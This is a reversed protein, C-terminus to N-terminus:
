RAIRVNARSTDGVTVRTARDRREDLTAGWRRSLLVQARSSTVLAVLYSGAPLGKLVFRGDSEPTVAFVLGQYAAYPRNQPVAVVQDWTTASPPEITGGLEFVRDTLTYVIEGPPMGPQLVVPEELLDRGNMTISMLAWDSSNTSSGSILDPRSLDSPRITLGAVYRGPPVSSTDLATAANPMSTIGFTRVWGDDENPLATLTASPRATALTKDGDLGIRARVAPGNSVAVSGTWPSRGDHDILVEGWARSANGKGASTDNAVTAEIVLRYRGAPMAEFRLDARGGGGASRVLGLLDGRGILTASTGSISGSYAASAVIPAVPVPRLVIEAGSAESGADVHVTAATSQRYDGGYYATLYEVAENTGDPLRRRLPTSNRGGFDAQVSYDGPAVFLRYRGDQTTRAAGFTTAVSPDATRAAVNVAALGEGFEDIVRGSIVGGRVLPVILSTQQGPVVMVRLDNVDIWGPRRVTLVYRGAPVDAEILGDSATVFPGFPRGIGLVTVAMAATVTVRDLPQGDVGVARIVLRGFGESAAARDRSQAMMATAGVVIALSAAISLLRSM